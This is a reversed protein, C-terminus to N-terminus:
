PLLVTSGTLKRAELDRHAAAAERLPYTQRVNVKVGGRSMVDFLAAASERLQETTATYAFLGPRTIFLSGKNALIQLDFPPVAGSAAGFVVMLGLPALCDLSGRFTDAGVGDYVVPLRKGGTIERVRAAIDEEGTVIVHACGAEQALAVKARSGVTGIVTAGLSSAWQCLIQGVGGAAAHVLITENGEVKHTRRVLYEATMGKLMAGAAQVDDIGDPIKVLRAAPRVLLEAYAGIPDVYAVRDGVRLDSVDPGLAEIV